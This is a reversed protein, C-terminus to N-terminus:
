GKAPPARLSFTRHLRLHRCLIRRPPLLALLSATFTHICASQGLCPFFYFDDIPCRDVVREPAGDDPMTDGAFAPFHARDETYIHVKQGAQATFLITLLLCAYFKRLTARKKM